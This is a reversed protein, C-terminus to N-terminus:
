ESDKPTTDKATVEHKVHKIVGIIGWVVAVAIGIWVYKKMHDEHFGSTKLKPSLIIIYFYYLYIDIFFVTYKQVTKKDTLVSGIALPIYEDEGSVLGSGGALRAGSPTNRVTVYM